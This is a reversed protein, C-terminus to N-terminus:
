GLKVSLLSLADLSMFVRFPWRESDYDNVCM